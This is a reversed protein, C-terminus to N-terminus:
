GRIWEGFFQVVMEGAKRVPDSIGEGLGTRAAQIGLYYVECGTLKKLLKGVVGPAIKWASIM